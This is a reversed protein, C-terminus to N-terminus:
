LITVNRDGSLLNNYIYWVFLAVWKDHQIEEVHERSPLTNICCVLSVVFM